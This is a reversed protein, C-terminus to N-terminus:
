GVLWVCCIGQQSALIGVSMRSNRRTKYLIQNMVANVFDWWKGRNQALGIREM